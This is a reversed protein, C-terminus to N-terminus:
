CKSEMVKSPKALGVLELVRQKELVLEWRWGVWGIKSSPHSSPLHELTETWGWRVEDGACGLPVTFVPKM